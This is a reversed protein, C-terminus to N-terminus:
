RQSFALKSKNQQLAVEVRFVGVWNIEDLNAEACTNTLWFSTSRLADRCAKEESCSSQDLLSCISPCYSMSFSLSPSLLPSSSAKLFNKLPMSSLPSSVNEWMSRSSRACVLLRVKEKIREFKVCHFTLVKKGKTSGARSVVERWGAMQATQLFGKKDQHEFVMKLSWNSIELIAGDFRASSIFLHLHTFAAKIM